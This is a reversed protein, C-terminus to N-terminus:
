NAQLPLSCAGTSPNCELPACCDATTTCTTCTGGKCAPTAGACDNCTTCTTGPPTCGPAQLISTDYTIAFSGSFVLSSAFFAGSMSFSSAVQVDAAPAYVNANVTATASLTLSQGGVYMRMNAAAGTANLNTTGKLTVNGAVFLDLEAGAGLTITLGGETDLNGGVFLAARGTVDITVPASGSLANVYFLGCPLTVPSTPGDLSTPSLGAAADDNSSVHAAVVAAVDLPSSCNCPATVNVANHVIGGGSTVGTATDGAPIDVTGVVSLTGSSVNVNGSATLNGGVIVTGGTTVAGGSEVNLAITSTAGPPSTLSVAPSGAAVAQGGGWVSGGVTAQGNMQVYGNAAISAATGPGADGSSTELLGSVLLTSCACAAFRFLRAVDGSCQDGTIPIPGQGSCFSSGDPYISVEPKDGDITGGDLPGAGIPQADVDGCAAAGSLGCVAVACLALAPWVRM